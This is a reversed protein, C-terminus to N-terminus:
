KEAVEDLLADEDEQNGGGGDGSDKDGEDDKIRLERELEVTLGEEVELAEEAVESQFINLNWQRASQKKEARLEIM